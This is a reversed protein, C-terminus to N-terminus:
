IHILSLDGPPHLFWGGRAHCRRRSGPRGGPPGRGGRVPERLSLSRRSNQDLDSPRGCSCRYTWGTLRAGGRRRSRVTVSGSGAQRAIDGLLGLGLQEPLVEGLQREVLERTTARATPLSSAHWPYGLGQGDAVADGEVTARRPCDCSTSAPRTSRGSSQSLRTSFLLISSSRLVNGAVVPEVPTSTRHRQHDLGCVGSRASSGCQAPRFTANPGDM